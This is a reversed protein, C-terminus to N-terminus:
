TFIMEHKNMSKYTNMQIGFAKTCLLVGRHLITFALGFCDVESDKTM